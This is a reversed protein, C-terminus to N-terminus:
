VRGVCIRFRHKIPPLPLPIKLSKLILLTHKEMYSIRLPPSPFLHISSPPAPPMAQQRSKHGCNMNRICASFPFIGPTLFALQYSKIMTPSSSSRRTLARSMVIPPSHCPLVLHKPVIGPKCKCIRMAVANIAQCIYKHLRTTCLVINRINLIGTGRGSGSGCM